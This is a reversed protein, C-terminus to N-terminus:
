LRQVIGDANDTATHLRVVEDFNVFEVRDRIVEFGSQGLRKKFQDKRTEDAVIIFNTYYDQLDLFKHLSNQFDTSFEVELLSDPMRRHNFWVVDVTRARRVMRKYGFEPISELTRVDALTRDLFAQNKDQSPIWTETARMNGIEALLGQYYTHDYQQEKEPTVGETRLHEPLEVRYEELGWLGPRIKFFQDQRQVIRRISANPTKTGWESEKVHPAHEYLHKLTAYGGNEEMVQEVAEYQYM